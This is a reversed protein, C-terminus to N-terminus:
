GVYGEDGVDRDAVVERVVPTVRLEGDGTGVMTNFDFDAGEGAAIHKHFTRDEVREKSCDALQTSADRCRYIRFSVRISQVTHPSRNAFHINKFVMDNSPQVSPEDTMEFEYQSAELRTESGEDWLWLAAGAVMLAYIAWRVPRFTLLILISALPGLSHTHRIHTAM